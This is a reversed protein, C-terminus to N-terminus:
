EAAAQSSNHIGRLTREFSGNSYFQTLFVMRPVVQFMCDQGPPNQLRLNMNSRSKALWETCNDVDAILFRWSAFVAKNDNWTNIPFLDATNDLESRLAELAKGIRKAEEMLKSRAAVRTKQSDSSSESSWESSSQAKSNTTKANSSSQSGSTESNQSEPISAASAM